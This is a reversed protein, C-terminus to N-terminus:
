KEATQMPSIKTRGNVEDWTFTRRHLVTPGAVKYVELTVLPQEPQTDIDLICYFRGDDEKFLMGPLLKIKANTSGLPGSTIEIWTGLTQYAGCFHRDGTILIVGQIDHDRIFQFIEDREKTFSTWSDATGNTQWESGCAVVKVRADSALLTRKLWDVQARGLMTKDTLNTAKNPSRYYRDDLMIFETGGRSFNYYVGPNNPEGYYPNAWHEKFAQLSQEKGALTGDSDNPGFDHDDWIAYIPIKSGLAQYGPVSRQDFYFKRQVILDNTNAYHNDGLLLLIDFNTRTAMDAYGSASNFGNYGVCSTFAVRVQGRPAPAPATQFSPYPPSMARQGNLLLCYHYRHDPLLGPVAVDGTDGSQDKLEPGKITRADSLDEREGVLASLRAPASARAWIRAENETVHGLM